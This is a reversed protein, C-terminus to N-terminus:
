LIALKVIQEIACAMGNNAIELGLMGTQKILVKASQM